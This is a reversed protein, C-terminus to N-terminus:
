NFLRCRGGFPRLARGARGDFPHKLVGSVQCRAPWSLAPRTQQSRWLQVLAEHLRTARCKRRRFVVANGENGCVARCHHSRQPRFSAPVNPQETTTGQGAAKKGRSEHIHHLHGDGWDKQTCSNWEQRRPSWPCRERKSTRLGIRTADNRQPVLHLVCGCSMPPAPSSLTSSAGSHLRRAPM